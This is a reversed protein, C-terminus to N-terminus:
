RREAMWDRAFEYLEVMWHESNGFAVVMRGNRTSVGIRQGGVGSLWYSDKAIENETWILYGYSGFLKGAPRSDRSGKNAIQPRTAERVYDGFCNTASRSSEIWLAFRIWDDINMRTSFDAAAEGRRDQIVLGSKAMGMPNFVKQQVWQAYTMGTARKLMLGAVLPDQNKYLFREGPKDESFFGGGARSVRDETVVEVLSLKGTSWDASQQPTFLNGDADVGASGSAMRLLDRLTARGLAKGRLEPVLSDAQMDMKLHGECIASGVAMSTVIKGMSFGHFTSDAQAPPKFFMAVIEGGDVLALAKADSAALLREARQVLPQENLTPNRRTLVTPRDSPKTVYWWPQGISALLWEDPIRSPTQAMGAESCLALGLILILKPSSFFDFLKM